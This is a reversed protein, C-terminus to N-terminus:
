LWHYGSLLAGKVDSDITWSSEPLAMQVECAGQRFLLVRHSTEEPGIEWIM